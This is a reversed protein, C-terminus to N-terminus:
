AFLILTTVAKTNYNRHGKETEIIKRLLKVPNIPCITVNPM